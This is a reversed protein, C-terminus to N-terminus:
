YFYIIYYICFTTVTISYPLAQQINYNIKEVLVGDEQTKLSGFHDLIREPDIQLSNLDTVKNGETDILDSNETKQESDSCYSLYKLWQTYNEYKYYDDKVNVVKFLFTCKLLM